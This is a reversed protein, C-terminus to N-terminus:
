APRERIRGQQDAQWIQKSDVDLATLWGAGYCCTDICILYGLDLIQGHKQATHGVVATKGSCHPGPRRERLSQWLMVDTPQRDLPVDPLYNGHVFFHTGTEFYYSCSQLFDVHRKPVGHPVRGDYSTLTADGGFLVWESLLSTQGSCIDLLMEDHNGLLPALRCRSGLAILEELVGPSDPGRDVYDGMTVVTDDPQPDIAALLARLAALCGHVDGIAITRSSRKLAM